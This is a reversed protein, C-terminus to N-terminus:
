DLNSDNENLLDANQTAFDVFVEVAQSVTITQLGEPLELLDIVSQKLMNSIYKDQIIELLRAQRKISSTIYKSVVTGDEQEVDEYYLGQILMVAMSATERKAVTIETLPVELLVRYETGSEDLKDDVNISELEEKTFSTTAKDVFVLVKYLQPERKIINANGIVAINTDNDVVPYPIESTGTEEVVKDIKKAEPMTLTRNKQLDKLNIPM